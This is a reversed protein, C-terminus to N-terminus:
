AGDATQPLNNLEELAAKLEAENGKAEANRIAMTLIQRRDKYYEKALEAKLSAIEEDGLESAAGLVVLGVVEDLSPDESRKKGEKLIRFV